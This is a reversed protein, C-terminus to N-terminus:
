RDEGVFRVNPLRLRFNTNFHQQMVDALNSRWEPSTPYPVHIEISNSFFMKRLVMNSAWFIIAEALADKDKAEFMRNKFIMVPPTFKAHFPAFSEHLGFLILDYDIFSSIREQRQRQASDYLRERLSSRFDLEGRAKYPTQSNQFLYNLPYSIGAKECLDKIFRKTDGIHAAPRVLGAKFLLYWFRPIPLLENHDRRVRFAAHEHLVPALFVLECLALFNVVFEQTTHISGKTFDDFMRLGHWYNWSAKGSKSRILQRLKEIPYNSRWFEAVTAMGEIITQLNLQGSIDMVDFLRTSAYATSVDFDEHENVEVDFILSLWNNIRQFTFIPNALLPERESVRYRLIKAKDRDGVLERLFSESIWYIYVQGKLRDKLPNDLADVFSVLPMKPAVNHEVLAKLINDVVSSQLAQIRSILLGIPTCITQWYHTIEHVYTRQNETLSSFSGNFISSISSHNDKSLEDYDVDFYAHLTTVDFLGATAALPQINELEESFTNTVYPEVNLLNM